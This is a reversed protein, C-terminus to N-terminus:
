NGRRGKRDGRKGRKGHRPGPRDSKIKELTKYQEDSLVENMEADREKHLSERKEQMTERHGKGEERMAQVKKAFTLNIEHVKAKQNEDLELKETLHKTQREAMEEPSPPPGPQATATFSLAFIFVQMVVLRFISKM